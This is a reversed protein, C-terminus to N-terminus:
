LEVGGREIEKMRKVRVESNLSEYYSNPLFKLWSGHRTNMMSNPRSMMM